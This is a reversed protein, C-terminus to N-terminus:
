NKCEKTNNKWSVECRSFMAQRKYVDLHTYSVPRTGYGFLNVTNQVDLHYPIDKKNNRIQLLFVSFRAQEGPPLLLM